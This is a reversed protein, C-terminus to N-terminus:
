TSQFFFFFSIFLFILYSQGDLIGLHPTTYARAYRVFEFSIDRCGMGEPQQPRFPKKEGRKEGGRFRGGVGTTQGVRM